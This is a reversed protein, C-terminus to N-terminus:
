GSLLALREGCLGASGYRGVLVVVVDAAANMHIYISHMCVYMYMCVYLCVFM